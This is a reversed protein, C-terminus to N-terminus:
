KRHYCRYLTILLMVTFLRNGQSITGERNVLKNFRLFIGVNNQKKNIVCHGFYIRSFIMIAYVLVVLLLLTRNNSFLTISFLSLMFLLHTADIIRPDTFLLFSLSCLILTYVFLIDLQRHVHNCSILVLCAALLSLFSYNVFSNESKYM